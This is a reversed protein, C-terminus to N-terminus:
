HLTVEEPLAPPADGVLMTEIVLSCVIVAQTWPLGMFPM